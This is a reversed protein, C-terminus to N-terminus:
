GTSEGYYTSTSLPSTYTSIKKVDGSPHHIGVGNSSASSTTTWGNYIVDYYAPPTSNLEVLLFDSGGDMLGEAIHSCGTISNSSPEISTNNCNSFEYNFYFIWQDYYATSIGDACHYASLFYPTGNENSNNVLSGTCWFSGSGSKVLIRAVGRKEDQWSAGESCNINVECEQSNGFGKERYPDHVGQYYYELKAISINATNIFERSKYADPVRPKPSIYELILSSGYIMETAFWGGDANNRDNFAGIRQVKDPSYIFLESGAPLSFKDYSIGLAKANESSIKLRWVYRGDPLIDWTGANDMNINIDIHTAIQVPRGNKGDAKSAEILQQVDPHRIQLHDIESSLSKNEFSAPTGDHSIQANLSGALTLLLVFSFLRKFHTM